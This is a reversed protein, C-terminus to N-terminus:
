SGVLRSGDATTLMREVMEVMRDHRAKVQFIVRLRLAKAESFM